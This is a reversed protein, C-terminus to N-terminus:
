AQRCAHPRCVKSQPSNSRSLRFEIDVHWRPRGQDLSRLSPRTSRLGAWMTARNPGASSLSLTVTPQSPGSPPAVAHDPLKAWRDSGDRNRTKGGEPMSLGSPRARFRVQDALSTSRAGPRPLDDFESAHYARGKPTMIHLEYCGTQSMESAKRLAAELTRRRRVIEGHKCIARVCFSM